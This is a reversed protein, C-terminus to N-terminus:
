QPYEVSLDPGGDHSWRSPEVVIYSSPDWTGSLLRRFRASEQSAVIIQVSRGLEALHEVLVEIHEEDFAQTPDDLMVLYVETPADDVQSFAFYPVLKLASQAQGNLVDVPSGRGFKDQSSAVHLELKPMLEEVMILQNYWPHGTLAAFASSLKEEVDPISRKLQENFCEELIELMARVSEGFMVLDRHAKEAERLRNRSEHLDALERQIEHYRAEEFLLGLRKGISDFWEGQGQMQARIADEGKSRRQIERNLWTTDVQEPIEPHSAKLRVIEEDAHKRAHGIESTLDSVEGRLREALTFRQELKILTSASGGSFDSTSERLVSELDKRPHRDECVPCSVLAEQTRELLSMADKLIKRKLDEAAVENRTKEVSSRLEDFTLADLVSDLQSQISQVKQEKTGVSSKVDLIQVLREKIKVQSKLESELQGQNQNRREKLEGAAHSSLASLSLGSLTSEPDRGTIERILNRIRNESDTVSPSTEGSWPPNSLINGRQREHSRIDRDIDDRVNTIRGALKEEIDEQSVLFERIFSILVRPHTLGLHDFITKEFSSLDGPRRSLPASQSSFLVHADEGADVSDLQPLVGRTPHENGHKDHLVADSGGSVGRILTRRLNWLNGDRTFAVEVSCRGTYDRNAILENPRGLSGVLCWRIAEIISSKGNGNQGLLFAHRGNLAIEKRSTFGKFGEIAVSHISFGNLM